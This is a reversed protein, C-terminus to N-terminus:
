TRVVPSTAGVGERALTFAQKYEGKRVDIKHTVSQVYFSGDYHEGAGRVDVLGRPRLIRGYRLADLTGTATVAKDFSKDVEAQARRRAEADSLGDPRTLYDRKRATPVRAALPPTRSPREITEESGDELTFTMKRPAIQDWKFSISEVNTHPGMNVSLAGQPPTRRDPPGWYATNVLPAPGAEVYFVFGHRSALEKVYELHTVSRPQTPTQETVPRVQPNTPTEVRPVIGYPVLYELLILTVILDDSLNPYPRATKELDMMVSVDEGTLTLKSSGPDTGPALQHNTIIGDVIPIPVIGFLVNVLVRNFPQLRPERLLAYDGRDLVSRGIQFVLQFGSRDEAKTTVEVSELAEGLKLPAPTPVGEGILLQLHIGLLNTM